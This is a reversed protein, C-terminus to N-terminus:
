LEQLVFPFLDPIAVWTDILKNYKYVSDKLIDHMKRGELYDRYLYTDMMNM